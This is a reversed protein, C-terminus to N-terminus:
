RLEDVGRLLSVVMRGLVNVNKKRMEYGNVGRELEVVDKEGVEGGGLHLRFVPKGVPYDPEVGIMCSVKIEGMCLAMRWAQTYKGGTGARSLMGKNDWDKASLRVFEEIKTDPLKTMGMDEASVPVERTALVALQRKLEVIGALRRELAEVVDRVCIHKLAAAARAPWGSFKGNEDAAGNTSLQPLCSIGCLVNAWVFARGGKLKNYDFEFSDDEKYVGNANPAIEGYDYPYLMVLGNTDYGSDEKGDVAVCSTVSVMDLKEHYRFVVRLCEKGGVLRVDMQVCLPHMEYVDMGDGEVKVDGVVVEVGGVSEAYGLLSRALVYLGEPLARMRGVVHPETVCHESVGLMKRIPVTATALSKIAAPVGKLAERSEDLKAKKKEREDKAGDVEERMRKRRGLEENLIGVMRTHAAKADEEKEASIEPLQIELKRLNGNEMKRCASIQQQLMEREYRVNDLELQVNRLQQQDERLGERSKDVTSVIDDHAMKALLCQVVMNRNVTRLSAEAAGNPTTAAQTHVSASQTIANRLKSINQLLRSLAGAAQPPPPTTPVM